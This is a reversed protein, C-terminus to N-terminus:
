HKALQLLIRIEKAMDSSYRGIQSMYVFSLGPHRWTTYLQVTFYHHMGSASSCPFVVNLVFIPTEQRCSWKYLFKIKEFFFHDPFLNIFSPCTRFIMKCGHSLSFHIGCVLLPNEDAHHHLLVFSRLVIFYCHLQITIENNFQCSNQPSQRRRREWGVDRRAKERDNPDQMLDYVWRLKVCSSLKTCSSVVQCLMVFSM